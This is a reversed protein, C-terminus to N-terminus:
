SSADRLASWDAIRRGLLLAGLVGAVPLIVVAAVVEPIPVVLPEGRSELLGWAPLLGAPVALAGGLLSLVGARAATIRRRISPDAGVALLTRQDPRSEAEGLAVAIATVSLAFLLSAVTLAFRFLTGFAVPGLSADAYTEEHQAAFSAARAVHAETVPEALRILYRLTRGPALGLREATSTSIVATEALEGQDLGIDVFTAPLELGALQRERMDRVVVTLRDLTAAQGNLEGSVVVLGGADLAEVADSAAMAALLEADGITLQYIVEDAGTPSELAVYVEGGDRAVPWPVPAAAVAQLERAAQPGAQDAGEGLVVLQDARLWPRWDAASRADVSAFTAALAVTVAFAALIATVIPSSRSRARATERLAIRAFAPLRVGLPELRELVWPACAGFGLVGLVSGGLMLLVSLTGDPDTLRLGTGASTLAAGSGILLLGLLLIRRAPSLAPRRGSLSELVPLRAASRAPVAAALLCALCGIGAALLIPVPDVVMPPVRRATLKDLWPSIALVGGIGLVVGVAAGVGGLLFGEALVTGGLHRREAGAAALLGLERQRRRVGVAFAASAVLLAEFLALGGLVLVGASAGHSSHSMQSRSRADFQCSLDERCAFEGDPLADSSSGAPLGVLWQAQGSLEDGGTALHEATSVHELVLRDGLDEPNEVLGVISVHGRQGLEIRDGIDVGARQALAASVAVESAARPQRGATVTLIGRGLGELDVSRLNVGLERGPLLLRDAAYSYAEVRAGDPLLATLAETTGGVGAYVLYDADGMRYTASTEPTPTLTAVFTTGAVMAAVPLLILSVILVSRGRSRRVNRWALRTVARVSSSSM